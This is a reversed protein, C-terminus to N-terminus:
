TDDDYYMYVCSSCAHVCSVYNFNTHSYFKLAEAAYTHVHMDLQILSAKDTAQLGYHMQRYPSNMSFKSQTENWIQTCAHTHM